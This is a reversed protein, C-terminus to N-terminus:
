FTRTKKQDIKQKSWLGLLSWLIGKAFHYNFSEKRCYRAATSLKVEFGKNEDGLVFNLVMYRGVMWKPWKPLRGLWRDSGRRMPRSVFSTYM